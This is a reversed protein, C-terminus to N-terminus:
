HICAEGNWYFGDRCKFRCESGIEILCGYEEGNFALEGSCKYCKGTEGGYEFGEECPNSQPCTWEDWTEVGGYNSFSTAYLLTSYTAQINGNKFKYIEKGCCCPVKGGGTSKDAYCSSAPDEKFIFQGNKSQFDSYYAYQGCGDYECVGGTNGTGEPCQNLSPEREEMTAYEFTSSAAEDSYQGTKSPVYGGNQWTQLLLSATNWEANEPLGTCQVVRDEHAATDNDADPITGDDDPITDADERVDDEDSGSPEDSDELTDSDETVADADGATDSDESTTGSDDVPDADNPDTSPSDSDGATQSDGSGDDHENNTDADVATGGGDDASDSDDKEKLNEGKDENISTVRQVATDGCGIVFLCVVSLLFFCKKM